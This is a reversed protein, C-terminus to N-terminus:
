IHDWTGPLINREVVCCDICDRANKKGRFFLKTKRDCQAACRYPRKNDVVCADVNLLAVMAGGANAADAGGAGAVDAGAPAIEAGIPTVEAGVRTALVGVWGM